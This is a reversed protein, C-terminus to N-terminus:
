NFKWRYGCDICHAHTTMPEDASRTQMQTYDTKKSKCKRCTLLGEYNEDFDRKAEERRLEDMLKKQRSTEMPGAPWMQSPTMNELQQPKTKTIAPNNKLNFQVSMFRHKYRWRFTRNEWSPDQGADVSEKVSWNYVAIEANHAKKPTKFVTLFKDRVFERLPHDM